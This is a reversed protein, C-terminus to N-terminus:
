KLDYHHVGLATRDRGQLVFETLILKMGAPVQVKLAGSNPTM